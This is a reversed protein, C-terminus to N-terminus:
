SWIKRNVKVTVINSDGYDNCNDEDHGNGLKSGLLRLFKSKSNILQLFVKGKANDIPKFFTSPSIDNIKLDVLLEKYNSFDNLAPSSVVFRCVQHDRSHSLVPARENLLVHDCYDIM